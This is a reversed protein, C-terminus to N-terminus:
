GVDYVLASIRVTEGHNPEALCLRYVWESDPPYVGPVM